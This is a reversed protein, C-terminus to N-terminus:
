PSIGGGGAGGSTAPTSTTPATATPTSTTPTTAVPTSSVPTSSVPAAYGPASYASPSYSSTGDALLNDARGADGKGVHLETIDGAAPAILGLLSAQAEVRSASLKEALEGRLASNKQVLESIAESTRGASANLGLSLVNLGVIGALLACLVGIWIRGRTLRHILGSESIDRVAGATRAAAHPLLAAGAAAPQLM